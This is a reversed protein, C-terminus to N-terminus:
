YIENATLTHIDTATKIAAVKASRLLHIARLEDVQVVGRRRLLRAGDQLGHLLVVLSVIGVHVSPNM